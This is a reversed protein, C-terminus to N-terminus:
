LADQELLMVVRSQCFRFLSTEHMYVIDQEWLKMVGGAGSCMSGYQQAKWQRSRSLTVCSVALTGVTIQCMSRISGNVM